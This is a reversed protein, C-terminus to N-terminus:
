RARPEHGRVRVARAPAPLKTNSFLTKVLWEEEGNRARRRCIRMCPVEGGHCLDDICASQMSDLSEGDACEPCGDDDFQDDDIDDQTWAQESM